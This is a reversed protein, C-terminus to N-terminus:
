GVGLQGDALEHPEVERGSAAGAEARGPLRRGVVLVVDDATVLVVAVPAFQLGAVLAVVAGVGDLPGAFVGGSGGRSHRSSPAISGRGARGRVRGACRPAVWACCDGSRLLRTLRRIPERNVPVPARSRATM